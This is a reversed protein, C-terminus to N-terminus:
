VGAIKHYLDLTKRATEKWSFMKVREIGKEVLKERVERNEMVTVIGDAIDEPRKPDTIIAADGAIEPLCASDAVVCPLGMAMAEVVPFCFGEYLSPYVMMTAASYLARIEEDPLYDLFIVLKKLHLDCVVKQLHDFYVTKKGSLVLHVKRGEEKLIKLAKLIAETNKRPHYSGVHFIFSEPLDHKHRVQEACGSDVPNTYGDHLGLYITEVSAPSVAYREIIDERTSESDAIIFDAHEIAYKTRKIIADSSIGDYLEPFLIQSLDHITVVRKVSSCEPLYFSPGHFVDIEDKKIRSPLYWKLWLKNFREASLFEPVWGMHTAYSSGLNRTIWARSNRRLPYYLAYANEGDLGAINQLLSHIYKGVGTPYGPNLARIDIGIRMSM